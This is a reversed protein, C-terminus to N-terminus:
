QSSCSYEPSMHSVNYNNDCKMRASKEFHLSFATKIYVSRVMFFFSVVWWVEFTNTCPSLGHYDLRGVNAAHRPFQMYSILWVHYKRFMIPSLSVCQMYSILWVHYKRFMIPSLSLCKVLTPRLLM